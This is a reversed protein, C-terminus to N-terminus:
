LLGAEKSLIFVASNVEVKAGELISICMCPLPVVQREIAITIHQLVCVCRGIAGVCM